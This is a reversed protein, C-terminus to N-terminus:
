ATGRLFAVDMAGGLAPLVRKPLGSAYTSTRGTRPDVRSVRGAVAETVYLAGDPGVTSGVSGQLGATLVHTRHRTSPAAIAAGVFTLVMLPAVTVVLLSKAMAVVVSSRM